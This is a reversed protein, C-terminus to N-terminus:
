LNNLLEELIARQSVGRELAASVLKEKAAASIPSSLVADGEGVAGFHDEFAEASMHEQAWEIARKASMPVIQEGGGWSDGYAKAYRTQAGGEGHIFYEGTRKRYLTEEVYGFDGYRGNDWSAVLSATDTDYRKGNIIKKM